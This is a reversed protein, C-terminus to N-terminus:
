IKLPIQTEWIRLIMQWLTGMEPDWETGLLTRLRGLLATFEPEEAARGGELDMRRRFKLM